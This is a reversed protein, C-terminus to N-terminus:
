AQEPPTSDREVRERIERVHPLATEVARTLVADTNMPFLTRSAGVQSRGLAAKAAERKEVSTMPDSGANRRRESLMEIQITVKLAELEIMKQRLDFWRKLWAVAGIVGAGLLTSIMPNALLEEM